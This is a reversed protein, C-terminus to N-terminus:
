SEVVCVCVSSRKDPTGVEMVEPTLVCVGGCSGVGGGIAVDGGMRDVTDWGLASQRHPWDPHLVDDPDPFFVQPAPHILRDAIAAATVLPLIALSRMLIPLSTLPSPSCCFPPLPPFLIYYVTCPFRSRHNISPPSSSRRSVIFNIWEASPCSRCSRGVGARRGFM